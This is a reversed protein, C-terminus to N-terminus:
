QADAGTPAVASDEECAPPETEAPKSALFRRYFLPALFKIIAACPVALIVGAIGGFVAGLLIVIITEIWSLGIAEGVLMPYLFLQELLGNILLFALAIGILPVLVSGEVCLLTLSVSLTISVALGIYPLLVVSGSLLALIPWYPVGFLMFVLSYLPVEIIIIWFFGRVWADLMSYLRDMIAAASEKVEDTAQPFWGTAYLSKITWTGLNKEHEPAGLTFFAMKQLFIFFFFLYIFFSLLFGGVSSVVSILKQMTTNNRLLNFDPLNGSTVNQIADHVREKLPMEDQAESVPPDITDILDRVQREFHQMIEQGQSWEQIASGSNRALPVVFTIVAFVILCVILLLFLITAVSAKATLLSKGRRSQEQPSADSAPMFGVRRMLRNRLKRVPSFLARFFADFRGGAERPQFFTREFWKELPLFLYASLFGFFLPRLYIASLILLLLVLIAPLFGIAPIAVSKLGNGEGGRTRLMKFIPIKNLM